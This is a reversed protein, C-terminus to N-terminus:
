TIEHERLLVGGQIAIKLSFKKNIQNLRYKHVRTLYIVGKIQYFFCRKRSAQFYVTEIFTVGAM